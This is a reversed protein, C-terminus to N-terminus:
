RTSFFVIRLNINMVAVTSPKDHCLNEDEGPLGVHFALSDDIKRAGVIVISAPRECGEDFLRAKGTLHSM